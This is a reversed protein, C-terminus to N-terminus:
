FQTFFQISVNYKTTQRKIFLKLYKFFYFLNVTNLLAEWTAWSTFFRGTIHFVQTQDRPQSSGRSFPFSVWELTRAQLIGHVINVYFYTKRHKKELGWTHSFRVNISFMYWYCQWCGGWFIKHTCLLLLFSLM